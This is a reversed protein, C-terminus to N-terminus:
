LAAALLGVVVANGGLLARQVLRATRLGDWFPLAGLTLLAPPVLIGVLAVAAGADGATPVLHVAGPYAAFTFDPGPV